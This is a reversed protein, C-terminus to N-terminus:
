NQIRVDSQEKGRSALKKGKAGAGKGKVAKASKSSEMDGVFPEEGDPNEISAIIEALQDTRIDSLHTISPRQKM